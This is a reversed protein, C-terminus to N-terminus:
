EVLVSMPTITPRDLSSIPSALILSSKFFTLFQLSVSYVAFYMEDYM